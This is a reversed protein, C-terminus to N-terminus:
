AGVNPFILPSNLSPKRCFTIRFFLAHLVNGARRDLEAELLPLCAFVRSPVHLVLAKATLWVDLVLVLDVVNLISDILALGELRDVAGLAM